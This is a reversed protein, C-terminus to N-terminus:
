SRILNKKILSYFNFSHVINICARKKKSAFTRKGNQKHEEFKVICFVFFIYKCIQSTKTIASEKNDNADM